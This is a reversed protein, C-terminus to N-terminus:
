PRACSLVHLSSRPSQKCHPSITGADENWLDIRQGNKTLPGFREGLGYVLEGVKLDLSISMFPQYGGACPARLYPDGIATTAELPTPMPLHNPSIIYQLGQYGISTLSQSESEFGVRFHSPNKDVVAHLCNSSLTSTKRADNHTVEARLGGEKFDPFLDFRPEADKTGKFHTASCSIIGPAVADLELTITPRNLTNGRHSVHRTACLARLRSPGPRSVTATEIANHLTTGERDEWIGHTFRM